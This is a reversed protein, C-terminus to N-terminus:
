ALDANLLARALFGRKSTSAVLFGEGILMVSLYRMGVEVSKWETRERLGGLESEDLITYTEPEKSMRVGAHM